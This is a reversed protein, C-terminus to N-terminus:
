YWPDLVHDYRRWTVSTRSWKLKVEDSSRRADWHRHSIRYLPLWKSWDHHHLIPRSFRLWSCHTNIPGLVRVLIPDCNLPVQCYFVLSQYAALPPHLRVIKFIAARSSVNGASNSWPYRWSYGLLAVVLQAQGTCPPVWCNSCTRHHSVLAVTYGTM